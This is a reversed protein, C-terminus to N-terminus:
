FLHGLPLARSGVPLRPLPLGDVALGPGRHSPGFHLRSSVANEFGPLQSQKEPFLGTGQMLAM